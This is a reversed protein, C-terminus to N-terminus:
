ATEKRPALAVDYELEWKAEPDGERPVFKVTLGDKVAFVSDNGLYESESDFIQTTIPEFGKKQVILHIHAPRYPHRDMLELLKGAPGDGPM